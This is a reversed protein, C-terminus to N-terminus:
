ISILHKKIIANRDKVISTESLDIEIEYFCNSKGGGRKSFSVLLSKGDESWKHVVLDTVPFGGNLNIIQIFNLQSPRNMSLINLKTPDVSGRSNISTAYNGNPSISNVEQGPELRFCTDEAGSGTLIECLYDSVGGETKEYFIRSSRTLFIRTIKTRSGDFKRLEEEKGSELTTISTFGGPIDKLLIIKSDNGAINRISTFLGASIEIMKSGKESIIEIYPTHPAKGDRLIIANESSASIYQVNPLVGIRDVLKRSKDAADYKVQFLEVCNPISKGNEKFKRWFYFENLFSSSGSSKLASEQLNHNNVTSSGDQLYWAYAYYFVLISILLISACSIILVGRRTKYWRKVKSDAPM